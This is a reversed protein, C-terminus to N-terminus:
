QLVTKLVATPRVDVSVHQANQFFTMLFERDTTFRDITERMASARRQSCDVFNRDTM